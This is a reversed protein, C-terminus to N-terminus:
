GWPFSQPQPPGLDNVNNGAAEQMAAPLEYQALRATLDAIRAYLGKLEESMVRNAMRVRDLEAEDMRPTTSRRHLECNKLGFSNSDAHGAAIKSTVYISFPADCTVCKRSFETLNKYEKPVGKNNKIVHTGTAGRTWETRNHM